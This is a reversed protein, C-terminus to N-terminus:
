KTEIQAPPLPSPSQGTRAPTGASSAAPRSATRATPRSAEATLEKGYFHTTEEAALKTGISRCLVEARFVHNGPQDARATVKLVM